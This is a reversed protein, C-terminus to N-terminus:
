VQSFPCFDFFSSLFSPPISLSFQLGVALLGQGAIFVVPEVHVIRMIYSDHVAHVWFSIFHFFM